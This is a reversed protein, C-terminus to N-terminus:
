AGNQEGRAKSPQKWTEKRKRRDERVQREVATLAGKLAAMENDAKETAAINEPRVYAVVTAKFLHPTEGHAAQRLTVAAGILDTHGAALDRLRRDAEEFLKIEMAENTLDSTFEITFDLEDM